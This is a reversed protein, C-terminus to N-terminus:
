WFSKKSKPKSFSRSSSGGTCSDKSTSTKERKLANRSEHARQVLLSLIEVWVDRARDVRRFTLTQSVRSEDYYNLVFVHHRTPDAQVSQVRLLDIEQLAHKKQDYDQKESWIGMVWRRSTPPGLVAVWISTTTGLGEFRELPGSCSQKLVELESLGEGCKLFQQRVLLDVDSVTGKSLLGEELDQGSSIVMSLKVKPSHLRKNKPKMNYTKEPEHVKVLMVDQMADLSLSALVRSKNDMLDIVVHETGQEVMIHLPQQFIGNSNPDTEVQQKGATVRVVTTLKSEKKEFIAEHVLVMLEFDDFKDHGVWLLLRKFCYCDRISCRMCRACGCLAAIAAVCAVIACPIALAGRLLGMGPLFLSIM